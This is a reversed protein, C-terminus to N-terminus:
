EEEIPPLPNEPHQNNYKRVRASFMDDFAYFDSITCLENNIWLQSLKWAHVLKMLRIFKKRIKLFDNYRYIQVSHALLEIRYKEPISGYIKLAKKYNKSTSYDFFLLICYFPEDGAYRRVTSSYRYDYWSKSPPLDDYRSSTIEEM